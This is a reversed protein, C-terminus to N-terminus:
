ASMVSWPTTSEKTAAMSFPLLYVERLAAEDVQVDYVRRKTEADNCVLHKVSHPPPDDATIRMLLRM